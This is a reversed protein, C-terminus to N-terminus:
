KKKKGARIVHRVHLAPAKKESTRFRKTRRRKPKKGEVETRFRDIEAQITNYDREFLAESIDEILCSETEEPSKGLKELLKAIVAKKSLRLYRSKLRKDVIGQLEPRWLLSLTDAMVRKPNQKPTRLMYFDPGDPTEEITIIGWYDPVHEEVHAAHSTGVAIINHDFFRDYDAIQGPLRQYTDADSKIELGYVGEPLVLVVDARSSGVNKEEIIRIKGFYEELYDFLAERVDSDYLMGEERYAEM